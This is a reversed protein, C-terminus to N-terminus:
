KRCTRRSPSSPPECIQSRLFYILYLYNVVKLTPENNSLTLRDTSLKPLLHRSLAYFRIVLYNETHPLLWFSATEMEHLMNGHLKHQM